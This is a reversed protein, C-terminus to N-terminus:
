KDLEKIAKKIIASFFESSDLNHQHCYEMAKQYEKGTIRLHLEVPRQDAQIQRIKQEYNTSDSLKDSTKKKLNQTTKQM